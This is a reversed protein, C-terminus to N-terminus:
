FTGVAPPLPACIAKRGVTVQRPPRMRGAVNVPRPPLNRATPASTLAPPGARASVISVVVPVKVGYWEDACPPAHVSATGPGPEPDSLRSTRTVFWPAGSKLM